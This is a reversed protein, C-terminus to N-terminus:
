KLPYLYADVEELLFDAGHIGCLPLHHAREAAYLVPASARIKHNDASCHHLLADDALVLTDQLAEVVNLRERESELYVINELLETIVKPSQTLVRHTVPIACEELFDGLGQVLAYEGFLAAKGQRDKRMFSMAKMSNVYRQKEALEKALNPAIPLDLIEGVLSLWNRTGTYGYPMGKVFPIGLHEQMRRCVPLAEPRLCLNLQAKATKQLEDISTDLLWCANLTSGFAEAMLRKIENIDSRARRSYASAGIINYTNPVQRAEKKVFAEALQQYVQTLGLGYDGRLGGQELAILRASTKEQMYACVGAIDAGIVASIPSAVIFIVKPHLNSDVELIAKELRSVDGMVVDDESMHTTFIRNERDVGLAGYFGIGYHTTGAPGYEIIVSQEVTMLSWIIGMRDSPTPFYRVLSM